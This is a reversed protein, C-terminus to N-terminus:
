DYLTWLWNAIKCVFPIFAFFCSHTRCEQCRACLLCMSMQTDICRANDPAIRRPLKASHLKWMKTSRCIEESSGRFWFATCLCVWVCVRVCELKFYAQVTWKHVYIILTRITASNFSLKACANWHGFSLEMQLSHLQLACCCCRWEMHHSITETFISILRNSHAHKTHQKPRNTGNNQSIDILLTYHRVYM